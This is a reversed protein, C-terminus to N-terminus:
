CVLLHSTQRHRHSGKTTRRTMTTRARYRPHEPTENSTEKEHRSPSFATAEARKPPRPPSFIHGKPTDMLISAEQLALRCFNGLRNTTIAQLDTTSPHTKIAQKSQRTNKLTRAFRRTPFDVPDGFNSDRVEYIRSADTTRRPNSTPMPWRSWNWPRSTSVFVSIARGLDFLIIGLLLVDTDDVRRPCGSPVTVTSTTFTITDLSSVDGHGDVFHPADELIPDILEDFNEIQDLLNRHLTPINLGAAALVHNSAEEEEEEKDDIHDPNNDDGDNDQGAVDEMEVDLDECNHMMGDEQNLDSSLSSSARRERQRRRKREMNTYKENWPYPAQPQSTLEADENGEGNGTFTIADYRHHGMRVRQRGEDLAALHAQMKDPAYREPDLLPCSKLLEQLYTTNIRIDGRMGLQREPAFIQRRDPHLLHHLAQCFHYHALPFSGVCYAVSGLYTLRRSEDGHPDSPFTPPPQALPPMQAQAEEQLHEQLGADGDQAPLPLPNNDM